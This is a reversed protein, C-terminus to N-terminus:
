HPDELNINTVHGTTDSVVTFTLRYNGSVDISYKNTSGTYKHFRWDKPNPNAIDGICRASRLHILALRIRPALNPNIGSVNKGASKWFKRLGKHEVDDDEFAM